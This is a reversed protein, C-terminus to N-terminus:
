NLDVQTPAAGAFNFKSLVLAGSTNDANHQSSAVYFNHLQDFTVNVDEINTFQTNGTFLNPDNNTRVVGLNWTAAADTSYWLVAGPGNNVNTPNYGAVAVLRSSDTPDMAIDAGQIPNAANLAPTGFDQGPLPGPNTVVPQPLVAPALRDELSEVALRSISKIRNRITATKPEKKSRLWRGWNFFSM